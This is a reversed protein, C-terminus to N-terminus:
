PDKMHAIMTMDTQRDIWRDTQKDTQRPSPCSWQNHVQTCTQMNLLIEHTSAVYCVIVPSFKGVRNTCQVRMDGPLPSQQGGLVEGEGPSGDILQNLLDEMRLVLLKSHLYVRHLYPVKKITESSM